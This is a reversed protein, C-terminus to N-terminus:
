KLNSNVATIDYVFDSLPHYIMRKHRVEFGLDKLYKINKLPDNELFEHGEMSIYKVKDRIIDANEECLIFKEAGEIDMKLWDIQQIKNQEIFTRFTISPTDGSSDDLGLMFNDLFHGKGTTGVQKDDENYIGVNFATIVKQMKNIKINELIKKYNAEDLEIAYVKEANYEGAAWISFDGIFGGIDVIVKPKLIVDTFSPKYADHFFIEWIPIIDGTRPRVMLKYKQPTEFLFDNGSFLWNLIFMPNKFLFGIFQISNHIMDQWEASTIGRM